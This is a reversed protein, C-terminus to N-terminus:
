VQLKKLTAKDVANEVLLYGNEFYSEQQQRSIFRPKSKLVEEPAM